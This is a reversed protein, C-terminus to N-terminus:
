SAKRPNILPIRFNTQCTACVPIVGHVPHAAMGTAPRECADELWGCTLEFTM